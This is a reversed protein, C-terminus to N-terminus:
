TYFVFVVLVYGDLMHRLGSSCTIYSVTISLIIFVQVLVALWKYQPFERNIIEIIAVTSIEGRSASRQLSPKSDIDEQPVIKLVFLVWAINVLGCM